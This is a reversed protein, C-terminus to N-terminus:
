MIFYMVSNTITCPSRTSFRSYVIFSVCERKQTGPTFCFHLVQNQNTEFPCLSCLLDGSIQFLLDFKRHPLVSEQPKKILMTSIPFWIMQSMKPNSIHVDYVSTILTCALQYISPKWYFIAIFALYKLPFSLISSRSVTGEKITINEWSIYVTCIYNFTNYGVTCAIGLIYLKIYTKTIYVFTYM